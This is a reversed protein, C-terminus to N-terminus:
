YQRAHRRHRARPKAAPDYAVWRPNQNCFGRNGALVNPRCAELSAYHCDEYVAGNGMSMMACWPGEYAQVPRAELLVAVLAVGAILLIRM